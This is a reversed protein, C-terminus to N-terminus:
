KVAKAVVPLKVLFTTGQGVVSQVSIAGHHKEIIERAISMGLGTGKGLEKTTYFAEFIRELNEPPIGCGSDSISVVIEGAELATQITITGQNKGIAHSANVLLNVFVQGLQQTFGTIRPLDGYEKVVTANYKLENWVMSLTGDLCENIDVPGPQDDDRRSFNKLNQVIKRIRETGDLSEKLLDRTDALIFDVKLRQRLAQLEALKEPALAQSAANVGQIFEELRSLYKGLSGLNSAIFGTPNNIEHAVGAALQGISALKEQQITREQSSKLEELATRLEATRQEVLHELEDQFALNSDFLRKGALANNVRLLVEDMDVPKSLFDTAGAAIGNLRDQRESLMTVLLVPIHSTREDGKLRRCVEFGDLKPMMVDLLVVDPAEEAVRALAEEGDAAERVLYGKNELLHRLLRRNREEDDVVLIRGPTEDHM